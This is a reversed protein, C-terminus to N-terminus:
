TQTPEGQWIMGRIEQVLAYTSQALNEAVLLLDAKQSPTSPALLDRHVVEATYACAELRRVNLLLLEDLSVLNDSKRASM